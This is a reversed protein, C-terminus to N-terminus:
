PKLGESQGVVQLRCCSSMGSAWFGGVFILM